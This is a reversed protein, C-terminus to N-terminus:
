QTTMTGNDRRRAASNMRPRRAPAPRNRFRRARPWRGPASCGEPAAADPLQAGPLAERDAAPRPRWNIPTSTAAGSLSSASASGRRRSTAQLDLFEELQHATLMGQELLREGIRRQSVVSDHNLLVGTAMCGAAFLIGWVLAPLRTVTVGGVLYAASLAVGVV